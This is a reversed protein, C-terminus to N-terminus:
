GVSENRRKAKKSSIHIFFIFIFTFIVVISLISTLIQDFIFPQHIFPSFINIIKGFVLKYFGIILITTLVSWIKAQRTYYERVARKDKEIRDLDDNRCQNCRPDEQYKEESILNDCGVCSKLNSGFQNFINKDRHINDGSGSHNQDGEM